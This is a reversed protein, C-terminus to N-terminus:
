CCMGTRWADDMGASPLLPLPWQYWPPLHVPAVDAPVNPAPVLTCGRAAGHRWLRVVVPVSWGDPGVAMVALSAGDDAWRVDPCTPCVELPVGEPLWAAAPGGCTHLYLRGARTVVAVLAGTPCTRATVAPGGGTPLVGVPAGGHDAVDWQWVSGDSLVLTLLSAPTMGRGWDVGVVGPPPQVPIPLAAASTAAAATAATAATAAAATATTAATAPPPPDLSAVPAGVVRGSAADWLFAPGDHWWVAVVGRPAVGPGGGGGSSACADGSPDPVRVGPDSWAVRPPGQGAVVGAPWPVGGPGLHTITDLRPGDGGTCTLEFLALGGSHLAAAGLLPRDWAPGDVRMWAPACPSCLAVFAVAAALQLCSPTSPVAVAPPASGLPVLPARLVAGAGVGAVPFSHATLSSGVASVCLGQVTHKAIDYCSRPTGARSASSPVLVVGEEACPRRLAPVVPGASGGVAPWLLPRADYQGVAVVRLWPHHLYRVLTAQTGALAWPVPNGGPGVVAGPGPLGHLVVVCPRPTPDACRARRPRVVM